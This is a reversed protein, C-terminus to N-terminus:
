KAPKWCAYSGRRMERMTPRPRRGRARRCIERSTADEETEIEALWAVLCFALMGGLIFLVKTM